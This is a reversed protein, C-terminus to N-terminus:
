GKKVRKTAYFSSKDPSHQLTDFPLNPYCTSLQELFPKILTNWATPLPLNQAIICIAIEKLKLEMRNTESQDSHVSRILSTTFDSHLEQAKADMTYIGALEYFRVAEVNTQFRGNWNQLFVQDLSKSRSLAVYFTSPFWDMGKGNLIINCTLTAGQVKHVTMAYCLTLPFATVSALVKQTHLSDLTREFRYPPIVICPGHDFQIQPAQITTTSSTGEEIIHNCGVIFPQFDIVFGTHGNVLGLHKMNMRLMVRAGVCLSQQGDTIQLCKEVDQLLDQLTTLYGKECTTSLPFSYLKEKAGSKRLENYKQTNMNNVDQNTVMIHICPEMCSLHNRSHLLQYQEQTFPQNMGIRHLLDAFNLDQQRFIKTLIYTQVHLEQWISSQFCYMGMRALGGPGTEKRNKFSCVPPLQRFDGVFIVQLGGFPQSYKSRLIRLVVDLVELHWASLMSCEDLFLVRAFRISEIREAQTENNNSADQAKVKSPGMSTSSPFNVVEQKSHHDNFYHDLSDQARRVIFGINTHDPRLGILSHFTIGQMLLASVGTTGTVLVEMRAARCYRILLRSLYTKGTGAMGTILINKGNKLAQFILAHEPSVQVIEKELELPNERNQDLPHITEKQLCEQM